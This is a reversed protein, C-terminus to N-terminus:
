DGSETAGAVWAGCWDDPFTHPFRANKIAVAPIAQATPPPFPTSTALATPPMARCEGFPFEEIGWQKVTDPTPRMVTWWRCSACEKLNLKVTKEELAIEQPM